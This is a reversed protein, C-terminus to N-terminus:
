NSSSILLNVCETISIVPNAQVLESVISSFNWYRVLGGLATNFIELEYNIFSHLYIGIIWPLWHILMKIIWYGKERNIENMQMVIFDLM